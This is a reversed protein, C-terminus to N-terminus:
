KLTELLKANETRIDDAWQKVGQKIDLEGKMMPVFYKDFLPGGAIGSIGYAPARYFDTRMMGLAENLTDTWTADGFLTQQIDKLKTTLWPLYPPVIGWDGTVQAGEMTAFTYEMFNKVLDPVQTQTFSTLTAGGWVNTRNKEGGEYIPVIVSKWMGQGTEPTKVETEFFGRMWPPSYTGGLKGDKIAGWYPPSFWAADLGAKADWAMKAYEVAKVAADGQDFLIEEGSENSVNGGLAYFPCQFMLTSQGGADSGFVYLSSDAKEKVTKAVTIFDEYKVDKELMPVGAKELIDPRLWLTNPTIDGPMGYYKGNVRAESLKAAVLDKEHQKVMEDVDLLSGTRGLRQVDTAEFWFLDPAGSGAALAAEVKAQREDGLEVFTWTVEPHLKVYARGADDIPHDAHGWFILEGKLDGGSAAAPAETPQEAAPAAEAPQEAQPAAAPAAPAAPAACAALATAATGLAAAKLFYRRSVSVHKASM